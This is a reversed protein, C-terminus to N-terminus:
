DIRIPLHVFDAVGDNRLISIARAVEAAADEAPAFTWGDRGPSGIGASKGDATAYYAQGLGVYFVSVEASAGDKLARIESTLTIERNWKDVENLLGVVNQFRESLTLRAAAAADAPLRQSLPKVRERLPDPLRPLLAKTRGELRAVVEGLASSTAKLADNEVALEHRLKETDAVGRQAEAIRSKLGDVERQVLSIREDLLERGLAWDRRELGILKRTEVWRSLTERATEIASGDQLARSTAPGALGAAVALAAVLAARRARSRAGNRTSDM